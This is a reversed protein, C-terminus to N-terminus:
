SISYVNRQDGLTWVGFFRSLISFPHVSCGDADVCSVARAAFLSLSFICHTEKQFSCRCSTRASDVFFGFLFLLARDRARNGYIRRARAKFLDALIPGVVGM